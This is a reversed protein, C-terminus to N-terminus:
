ADILIAATFGSVLLGITGASKSRDCVTRTVASTRARPEQPSWLVLLRRFDTGDTRCFFEPPISMVVGASVSTPWLAPASSAAAAANARNLLRTVPLPSLTHTLSERAERITGWNQVSLDTLNVAVVNAAVGTM